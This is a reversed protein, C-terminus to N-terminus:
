KMMDNSHIYLKMYKQKTNNDICNDNSDCLQKLLESSKFYNEKKLHLLALNYKTDRHYKTNAHHQQCLNLCELYM